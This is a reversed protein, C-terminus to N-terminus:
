IKHRCPCLVLRNYYILISVLSTGVLDYYQQVRILNVINGANRHLSVGSIIKPDVRHLNITIKVFELHANYM